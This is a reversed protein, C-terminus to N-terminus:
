QPTQPKPRPRTAGTRAGTATRRRAPTTPKKAASMGELAIHSIVVPNAPREMSGPAKPGRAIKKVVEISEPTCQGFITYNGNLVAQHQPPLAQETIFFQSSNTNPGANAYALMGPQDFKLDPAIENEFSYGANGQGTGLPDGCQIMFEPIVRHCTTGDYLPKGHVKQGTHPDTWDRTGSALGEFNAVGKPAKEPYLTCTIQGDSTEIVAKPHAPTSTPAAQSSAAASKRDTTAPKSTRAVAATALLLIPLLLKKNEIM